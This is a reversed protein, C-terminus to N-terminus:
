VVDTTRFTLDRTPCSRGPGSTSSRSSRASTTSDCAPTSPSANVTWKDQAYVGLEGKLIDSQQSRAHRAATILNPVGNNFRYSLSSENDVQSLDRRGWLDDFGIKFAHAGTM